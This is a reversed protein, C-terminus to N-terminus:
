KAREAKAREAAIVRARELAVSRVWTSIPMSAVAAAHQLEAQETENVLVRILIDRREADSVPPRGGKGKKRKSLM